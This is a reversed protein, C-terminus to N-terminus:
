LDPESRPNGNRVDRGLGLSDSDLASIPGAVTHQPPTCELPTEIDSKYIGSLQQKNEQNLPDGM